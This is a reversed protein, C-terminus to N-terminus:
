FGPVLIECKQGPQILINYENLLKEQLKMESEFSVDLNCKLFSRFDVLANLTSKCQIVKCGFKELIDKFNM